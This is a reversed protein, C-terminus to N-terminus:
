QKVFKIRDVFQKKNCLQIIYLGSPLQSSHFKYTSTEGIEKDIVKEGNISYIELASFTQNSKIVIDTSAPNPFVFSKKASSLPEASTAIPAPQFIHGPTDLPLELLKGTFKYFLGYAFGAAPYPEYTIKKLREIDAYDISDLSEGNLHRLNIEQVEKFLAEPIEETNMSSLLSEAENYMGEELYVGVLKKQYNFAPLPTLAQIALSSDGVMESRFLAYNIWEDLTDQISQVQANASQWSSDAAALAQKYHSIKNLVQTHTIHTSWDTEYLIGPDADGDPNIRTFIGNNQCNNIFDATFKKTYNAGNNIEQCPKSTQSDDFYYYILEYDATVQLANTKFDFCNASGEEKTGIETKTATLVQNNTRWDPRILVPHSFKFDNELFDSRENLGNYILRGGNFLNCQHSNLSAGTNVIFSSHMVDTFESRKITYSNSGWFVNAYTADKFLTNEVMLGIDGDVGSSSLYNWTYPNDSQFVCRVKDPEGILVRSAQPHTGKITMATNDFTNDQLFRIKTNLLSIGRPAFNWGINGNNDFLCNEVTISEANIAEFAISNNEFKSDNINVETDSNKILLGRECNEISSSFDMDLVVAGCDNMNELHIGVAADRITSNNSQIQNGCGSMKIGLWQNDGCASSLQLTTNKLILQGGDVHIEGAADFNIETNKITLTAGQEIVVKSVDMHSDWVEDESIIHNANQPLACCSELPNFEFMHNEIEFKMRRIQLTTFQEMCEWYYSMFNDIPPNDYHHSGDRCDGNPNLTVCDDTSAKPDRNTDSIGDNRTTDSSAIITGDCDRVEDCPPQGVSPEGFFTHHLGLCHGMEHALVGKDKSNPVGNDTGGVYFEKSPISKAFGKPAAAENDSALHIIICDTPLVISTDEFVNGTLYDCAAAADILGSACYTITENPDFYFQIDPPFAENLDDIVSGPRSSPVIGMCNENEDKDGYLVFCVKVCFSQSSLEPDYEQFPQLGSPAQAIGCAPDQAGIDVQCLLLLVFIFPFYYGNMNVSNISDFVSIFIRLFSWIKTFVGLFKTINM